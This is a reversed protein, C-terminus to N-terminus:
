NDTRFQSSRAKKQRNQDFTFFAIDIFVIGGDECVIPNGNVQTEYEDNEGIFSTWYCEIEDTSTYNTFTSFQFNVTRKAVVKWNHM